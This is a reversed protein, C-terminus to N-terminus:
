RGAVDGAVRDLLDITAAVVQRQQEAHGITATGDGRQPGYWGFQAHNAGDIEVFRAAPPLLAKSEAVKAPTSLGDLAGSISTVLLDSSALSDTSAPYSAWLVLGSIEDPHRKAFSAAAVGGLSHGGVAWRKVMPYAARVEDARDPAFFALNLPVPTIVVLFGRAAIDRAVPAYARPDVLGGPYVVLGARPTGSRPQFALWRQGDFTVDTDSHLATLAEKEPAVPNSSWVVFGVGAMALAFALAMIARALSARSFRAASTRM